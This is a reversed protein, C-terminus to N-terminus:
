RGLNVTGFGNARCGFHSVLALVNDPIVEQRDTPDVKLNIKGVKIESFGTTDPIATLDEQLLVLALEMQGTKVAQPVTDPELGPIDKRPWELAQDPANKFGKWRMHGDLLMRAMILAKQKSATEANDWADSYLRMSFHQEAEAESVYSNTGSIVEPM